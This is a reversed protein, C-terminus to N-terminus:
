TNWLRDDFGAAAVLTRVAAAEGPDVLVLLGREACAVDLAAGPVLRCGPPFGETGLEAYTDALAVQDGDTGWLVVFHGVDWIVGEPAVAGTRLNAVVGIPRALAVLASLLAAADGPGGAPVVTVEPCLAALGGALGGADTGGADITVSTALRDWGTRDLPAGAPRWEPVDHPWITTGSAVALDTVSPPENLLAHLAVWAAFPGCLQDPQPLAPGHAALVAGAGALRRM